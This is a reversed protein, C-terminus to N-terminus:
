KMLYVNIVNVKTWAWVGIEHSDRALHKGAVLVLRCFFICFAM